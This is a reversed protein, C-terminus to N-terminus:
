IIFYLSYLCHKYVNKTKYDKNTIKYYNCQIKIDFKIFFKKLFNFLNSEINKSDVYIIKDFPCHSPNYQKYSNNFTEESYSSEPSPFIFANLNM